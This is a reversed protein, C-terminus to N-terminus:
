RNVRFFLLLCRQQPMKEGNELTFPLFAWLSATGPPSKLRDTPSIQIAAVIGYQQTHTLYCYGQWIAFLGRRTRASAGKTVPLIGSSVAAFQVSFM